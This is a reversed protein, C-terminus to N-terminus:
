AAIPAHTVVLPLNDDKVEHKEKARQFDDLSRFEERLLRELEPNKKLPERRDRAERYHHFAWYKELGYLNGKKYFNLSLQEFDGYLDDRFEKELGYSYFRFLCELGYHYNAAADELAFKRFENYMSPVFVDRLFYSWFRYLTNMEESCGIGLKKRDNLCKKQYKLYKQQKFGNEELLQHSPHQFPPFSKPLSGVPPSSGAANGHPSASLKSSRFGHNEPPTSSFFFGVSKSPPSESIVGLSNRGGGHNRFNSSFFRQTHSSQQKASGKNQKRRNGHNGIEDCGHGGSSTESSRINMVGTRINPSRSSGDKNENNSNIKRRHSRKTKLEQEYFYLGDNIASALENSISNSKQVENGAGLVSSNQTVIVLREVDQDNVVVEDDEDDIRRCSNHSGKKHMKLEIELDEDLLFNGSYDSSLDDLNAAFGYQEKTEKEHSVVRTSKPAKLQYNTLLSSRVDPAAYKISSQSRPKENLYPQEHVLALKDSDHVGKENNHHASSSDEGELKDDTRSVNAFNDSNSSCIAIDETKDDKRAENHMDNDVNSNPDESMQDKVQSAHEVTAVYKSWNDRKRVQDVQVEVARSSQLADLIFPIDASMRKVRKFDAIVSISVWGQDDMQSLLYHDTQLNEDSFYYEIQAVISDRLALIDPPLMSAMPNLPHPAFHPPYPARISGPPGPSIYYIPAACPFSPGGVFSPAPGLFPRAYGRAVAQQMVGDRPGFPRPYHWLPYPHAGGEPVNPRRSSSNPGNLNPDGRRSQINRDAGHNQSVFGQMPTESGAKSIQNEAGPFPPPCPQYGYGPHPVPSPVIPPLVHPLVPQHFPVHHVPFPSVSNPNRKSGSRHHHRSQGHKHSSNSAKPQGASGQVNSSTPQVGSNGGELKLPADPVKSRQADALPPWAEAGMVPSDSGKDVPRKWPSKSGGGDSVSENVEMRDDGGENEAMAM